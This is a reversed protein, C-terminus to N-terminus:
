SKQRLFAAWEPIPEFLHIKDQDKLAILLHGQATSNDFFIAEDAMGLARPANQLSRPYRRRLDEESVDHGGSEVRQKVRQINISVDNTGIYILVVTYGLARAQMMMRLYTNGALTTEVLFSARKEMFSHALSLVQRGADIASTKLAQTAQMSRALADPDLVASEQFEERGLRTLTSKGAGNAGAVVTLTPM